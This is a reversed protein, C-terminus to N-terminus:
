LVIGFYGRLLFAALISIVLFWIVWHTEWGGFGVERPPYDIAISVVESSSGLRAEGPALLLRQWWSRTRSSSLYAIEGGVVAAKAFSGQSTELVVEGFGDAVARVRWAVQGASPATM